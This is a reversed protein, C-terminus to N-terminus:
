AGHCTGAPCLPLERALRGVERLVDVGDGFEGFPLARRTGGALYWRTFRDDRGPRPRRDSDEALWDACANKWQALADHPCRAAPWEAVVFRCLQEPVGATKPLQRRRM